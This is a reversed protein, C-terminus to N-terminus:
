PTLSATLPANIQSKYLLSSDSVRCVCVDGLGAQKAVHKMCGLAPISHQM